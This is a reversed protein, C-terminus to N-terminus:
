EAGDASEPEELALHPLSLSLSFPPRYLPIYLHPLSLSISLFLDLHIQYLHLSTRRM